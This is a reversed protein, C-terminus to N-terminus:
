QAYCNTELSYGSSSCTGSYTMRSGGLDWCESANEEIAARMNECGGFAEAARAPTAGALTLGGLAIVSSALLNIGMRKNM